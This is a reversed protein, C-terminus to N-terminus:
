PGSRRGRYCRAASARARDGNADASGGSVAFMVRGDIAISGAAREDGRRVPEETPESGLVRRDDPTAEASQRAGPFM